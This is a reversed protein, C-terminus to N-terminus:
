SEQHFLLVPVASHSLVASAVSGQLHGIIGTRRHTGMVIISAGREDATAVIGKWTPAGEATVGEARFGAHDALEAGHAATEEAAQAVDAARQADFHQGGVPVFGVDAPQWVVLVLAERNRALQAGAQQIALQALESGDYAFLVPGLPETPNIAM